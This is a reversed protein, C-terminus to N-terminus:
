WRSAMADSARQELLPVIEGFKGFEAVKTQGHFFRYYIQQAIGALRFLGFALYYDFNPVSLGTRALYSAVVERRTPMGPLHTPQRRLRRWAPDDTAEVWYALSNGLDMLPDGLTALEWDLVGILRTPQEPDLVLNDFRYDNHVVCTASEASPMNALLWDIVQSYSPVDPTQADRYRKVWGTVQRAVYGEGKGLASLGAAEVDIAHLACLGGLMNDALEATQQPSLTLGSPLDRRLIIGHLREMVFFPTGLVSDDECVAVVEPVLPYVPRLAQMVKAERVMDHASKAKHGFPPRRLVLEREPYRFLYTLNSAGGPFQRVEPEGTLSPLRSKLFRDVAAIDLPEGARLPGAPDVLLKPHAAQSPTTSM